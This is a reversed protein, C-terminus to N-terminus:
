HPPNAIRRPMGPRLGSAVISPRLSSLYRVGVRHGVDRVPHPGRDSSGDPQVGIEPCWLAFTLASM